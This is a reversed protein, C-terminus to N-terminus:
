VGYGMQSLLYIWKADGQAAEGGKNECWKVEARPVWKALLHGYKRILFAAAVRPDFMSLSINLEKNNRLIFLINFGICFLVFWTLTVSQVLVGVKSGRWGMRM